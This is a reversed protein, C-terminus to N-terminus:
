SFLNDFAHLLRCSHMPQYVAITKRFNWVWCERIPCHDCHTGALLQKLLKSNLVYLCSVILMIQDYAYTNVRLLFCTMKTNAVWERMRKYFRYQQTFPCSGPSRIFIGDLINQLLCVFNLKFINEISKTISIQHYKVKRGRGLAGPWFLHATACSCSVCWIQNSKTLHNLLLYSSLHVSTIAVDSVSKKFLYGLPHRDPVLM